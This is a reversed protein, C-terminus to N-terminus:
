AKGVPTTTDIGPSVVAVPVDKTGSKRQAAAKEIAEVTAMAQEESMGSVAGASATAKRVKDWLDGAAKATRRGTTDAKFRATEERALDYLENLADQAMVEAAILTEGLAHDAKLLDQRIVTQRRERHARLILAADPRQCLRTVRSKVAAPSGEWGELKLARYAEVHEEEVRTVVDGTRAAVALLEKQGATLAKAM